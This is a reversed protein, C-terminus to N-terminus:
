WLEWKMLCKENKVDGIKEKWKNRGYAQQSYNKWKEQQMIQKSGPKKNSKM